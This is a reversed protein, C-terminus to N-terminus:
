RLALNEVMLEHRSRFLNRVLGVIIILLVRIMRALSASAGVIPLALRVCFPESPPDRHAESFGTKESSVPYHRHVATGTWSGRALAESTAVPIRVTTTEM